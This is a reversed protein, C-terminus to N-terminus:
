RGSRVLAVFTNNAPELDILTLALTMMDDTTMSSVSVIASVVEQGFHAALLRLVAIEFWCLGLIAADSRRESRKRM